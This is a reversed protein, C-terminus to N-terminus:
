SHFFFQVLPGYQEGSDCQGMFVKGISIFKTEKQESFWCLKWLNSETCHQSAKMYIQFKIAWNKLLDGTLIRTLISGGCGRTHRLPHCFPPPDKPHSWFVRPGTDCCIHCSLYGERSLGQAGLMSRFKAARWRCHHHRWIHSFNKLPVYFRLYDILWDQSPKLFFKKYMYVCM